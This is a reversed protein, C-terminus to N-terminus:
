VGPGAGARQDARVVDERGGVADVAALAATVGGANPKRGARTLLITSPRAQQKGESPPSAAGVYV